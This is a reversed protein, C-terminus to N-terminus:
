CFKDYIRLEQEVLQKVENILQNVLEKDPELFKILYKEKNKLVTKVEGVGDGRKELNEIFQNHMEALTKVSTWYAGIRANTKEDFLPLGLEKEVLNIANQYESLEKIAAELTRIALELKNTWLSGDIIEVRKASQLWDYGNNIIEFKELTKLISSDDEESDGGLLQIKKKALKIAADFCFLMRFQVTQDFLFATRLWIKDIEDLWVLRCWKYLETFYHCQNFDEAARFSILARKETETLMPKGVVAKHWDALWLRIREKTSLNPALKTIDIKDM